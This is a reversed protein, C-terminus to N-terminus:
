FPSVRDLYGKTTFAIFLYPDDQRDKYQDYLAQMAAHAPRANDGALEIARAAYLVVVPEEHELLETLVALGEAEHGHRMLASAAQIRVAASSDTLAGLLPVLEAAPLSPAATYGMTGWYRVGEHNSKLAERFAAFDNTGVREAAQMYREIAYAESQGWTHPTSDVTYKLMEIEPVFGLDRQAILQDRLAAQMTELVDQHEPSEALNTLNLPDEVVDYLAEVAKTPGAFHRQAATMDGSAAMQYFAANIKGQDPWASQQNYSLHPMYHRIYLYRQNRISRSFDVAEDIRDRHAYVYDRPQGAHEGLFANGQMYAPMPIGALSLVSPGFDDFSVLRDTRTGPDAPALHRYKEPFRVLLPVHTGSDLIIRKHRPMGSGHDSYFFIITDDLLNEEELRQLIEGVQQDMMTVCDYFRAITKRMEETDPYYPPVPAGAPDHVQDPKLTSQVEDVFQERPWVMTRSQHSVMHNFISFFPQEGERAWWGASDSNEDFSANIIAEAHGSNYDTKVNNTTYYGAERLLAPFGTWSDPLPYTTRMQHTGQVPHLSEM